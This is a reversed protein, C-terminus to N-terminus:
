NAAAAPTEINPYASILDELAENWEGRIGQLTRDREGEGLSSDSCTYDYEVILEGFRRFFGISTPTPADRGIQQIIAKHSPDMKLHPDTTFYAIAGDTEYSTHMNTRAHEPKGPLHIAPLRERRSFPFAPM